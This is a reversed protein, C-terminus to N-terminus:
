GVLWRQIEACAMVRKLAAEGRTEGRQSEKGLGRTINNEPRIGKDCGTAAPPSDPRSSVSTAGPNGEEGTLFFLVIPIFVRRIEEIGEEETSQLLSYEL